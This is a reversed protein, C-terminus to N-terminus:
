LKQSPNMEKPLFAAKMKSIIKETEEMTENQGTINSLKNLIVTQLALLVDLQVQNQVIQNQNRVINIQNNVIIEQNRIITTQNDIVVQHNTTNQLQNENMIDYNEVIRSQMQKLFDHENLLKDVIDDLNKM